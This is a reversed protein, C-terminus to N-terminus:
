LARSTSKVPLGSDRWLCESDAVAKQIEMVVLLWMMLLSIVVSGFSVAAICGAFWNPTWGSKPSLEIVWHINEIRIDRSVPVVDAVKIRFHYAEKIGKLAYDTGDYLSQVNVMGQVFGWFKMKRVHDWYVNLYASNPEIGCGMDQDASEAPLFISYIADTCELPVHHSSSSSTSM